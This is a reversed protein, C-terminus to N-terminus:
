PSTDSANRLPTGLFSLEACLQNADCVKQVADHIKKAFISFVESGSRLHPHDVGCIKQAFKSFEALFNAGMRMATQLFALAHSPDSVQSGAAVAGLRRTFSLGSSTKLIPHVYM